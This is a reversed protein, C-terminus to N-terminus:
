QCGQMNLHLWASLSGIPLVVWLECRSLRRARPQILLLAIGTAINVKALIDALNLEVVVHGNIRYGVSTM